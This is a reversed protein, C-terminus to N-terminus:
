HSAIYETIWDGVAQTGYCEKGEAQLDPTRVFNDMSANVATRVAAAEDKLDFYDFLMAVSLIQALPNAIDQGAAQPWSGHIPEFVPTSEGISASPLLGM